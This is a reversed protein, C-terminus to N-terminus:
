NLYKKMRPTVVIANATSDAGASCIFLAEIHPTKKALELSKDVGLVMFATAYADATMCDDAIVTVSLLNHQVPYGSVPDITHAVRKGDVYRFNRYNGSTAMAGNCLSAICEIENTVGATNLIPKDIGVQWCKGKENKGKAVIEGGIEVIYNEIGKSDLFDAVIDCSYGKAIASFNLTMRRDKKIVKGSLLSIKDMGVMQLLSDIKFPTIDDAKSFGFGWVNILPSVTPDFAGESAVYIEKSRNFVTKFYEDVRVTTDNRNIAAIISEENFPSLSKDFRKLLANIESQLDESYQYTIHYVTGFILGENYQYLIQNGKVKWLSVVAFVVLFIVSAIYGKGNIRM